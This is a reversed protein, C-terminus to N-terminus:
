REHSYKKILFYITKLVSSPAISLLFILSSPAKTVFPFYDKYLFYDKISFLQDMRLGYLSKLSIGSERICKLKTNNNYIPPLSLLVDTWKQLFINLIRDTYPNIIKENPPSQVLPFSHWYVYFTSQTALYDFVIATQIFNTNYYTSFKAKKILEASFILTSMWTMTYWLDNLLTNHNQYVASMLLPKKLLSQNYNTGNTVILDASHVNILELIKKIGDNIILDDDGLLWSYSCESMKLVNEFNKDAGLNETNQRYFIFPYVKKAEMVIEFTNDSSNNDSIYIPVQDIILNPIITSLLEKLVMARNYTPICIALKKNM